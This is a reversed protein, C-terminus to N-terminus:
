FIKLLQKILEFERSLFLESFKSFTENDIKDLKKKMSVVVDRCEDTEFDVDSIQTPQLNLELCIKLISEFSNSYILSYSGDFENYGNEIYVNDYSNKIHGSNYERTFSNFFRGPISIVNVVFNFSKLYENKLDELKKIEIDINKIKDIM